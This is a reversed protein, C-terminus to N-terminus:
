PWSQVLLTFYLYLLRKTQIMQHFLEAWCKRIRSIERTQFNGRRAAMRWCGLLHSWLRLCGCATDTKLYTPASSCLTWTGDTAASPKWALHVQVCCPWSYSSFNKMVSFVFDDWRKNTNWAAFVASPSTTVLVWLDATLANSLLLAFDFHVDSKSRICAFSQFFENLVIKISVFKWLSQIQFWCSEVSVWVSSGYM